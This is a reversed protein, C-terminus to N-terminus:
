RKKAACIFVTRKNARIVVLGHETKNIRYNLVRDKSVLSHYLSDPLNDGDNISPAEREIEYYDGGVHNIKIKINRNVVYSNDEYEIVGYENIVGSGNKLVLFSMRIISNNHSGRRIINVDSSCEFSLPTSDYLFFLVLLCLGTLTLLSFTIIKFTFLTKM